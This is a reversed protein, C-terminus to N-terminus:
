LCSRGEVIRFSLTYSEIVSNGYPNGTYYFGLAIAILSFVLFLYLKKKDNVLEKRKWILSVIIIITFIYVM